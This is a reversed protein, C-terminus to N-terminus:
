RSKRPHTKAPALRRNKRATERRLRDAMMRGALEGVAEDSATPFLDMVECLHVLLPMGSLGGGAQMRARGTKGHSKM